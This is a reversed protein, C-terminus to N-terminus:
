VAEELFRLASSWAQATARTHHRESAFPNAFAHRAGAYTVAEANGGVADIAQVAAHQQKETAHSDRVGRHLQIDPIGASVREIPSADGHWARNLDGGYFCCARSVGTGAAAALFALRGGMCFGLTAPHSRHGGFEPSGLIGVADAARAIIQDDVLQAKKEDPDLSPDIDHFLDPVAVAFGRGTLREIVHATFADFATRHYFFLITGRPSSAPTFTWLPSGGSAHRRPACGPIRVLFDPPLDSM